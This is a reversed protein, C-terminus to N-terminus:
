VSRKSDGPDLKFGVEVIILILERRIEREICSSLIIIAACKSGSEAQPKEGRYPVKIAVTM